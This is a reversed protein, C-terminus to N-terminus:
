FFLVRICSIVRFDFLFQALGGESSSRASLILPVREKRVRALENDFLIFRRDAHQLSHELDAKVPCCPDHVLKRIGAHDTRLFARLWTLDQHGHFFKFSIYLFM